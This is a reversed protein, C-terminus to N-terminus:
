TQIFAEGQSGKGDLLSLPSLFEENRIRILLLAWGHEKLKQVVQGFKLLGLVSPIFSPVMRVQEQIKQVLYLVLLSPRGFM